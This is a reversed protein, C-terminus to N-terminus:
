LDYEIGQGAKTTLSGLDRTWDGSKGGEKKVVMLDQIIMDKGAVAKVMDWVTLLAASAATLAEMEVGTKGECEAMAQVGVWGGKGGSEALERHQETELRFKVKLDTLGIPHCLPILESTKKGAMIGAIRATGLVDGKKFKGGSPSDALLDFAAAPLYIRGTATARRTTSTKNSISVMSARGSADLHTLSAQSAGNISPPIERAKTHQLRVFLQSVAPRSSSLSRHKDITTQVGSINRIKLYPYM